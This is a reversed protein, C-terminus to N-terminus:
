QVDAVTQQAGIDVLSCPQTIEILNLVEEGGGNQKYKKITM